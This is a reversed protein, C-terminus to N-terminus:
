EVFMRMTQDASKNVEIAILACLLNSKEELGLHGDNLINDVKIKTAFERALSPPTLVKDGEEIAEVSVGDGVLKVVLTTM